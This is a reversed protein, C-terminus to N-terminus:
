VERDCVLILFDPIRSDGEASKPYLSFWLETPEPEILKTIRFGSSILVNVLDGLTRHWTITPEMRTEPRWEVPFPGRKFYYDVKRYLRNGNTDRVWGWVPTAFCPHNVIQLYTGAPRLLRSFEKFAGRYDAVDQIVNNTVVVDFSRDSLFPLSTINAKHYTIDLPERKQEELAFSLMEQSLEVGTVKAGLKALKRSLYGDGCGADLVRKGSIDGLIGLIIPDLLDRRSPDNAGYFKHWSAANRDWRETADRQTYTM